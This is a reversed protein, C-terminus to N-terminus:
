AASMVASEPDPPEIRTPNNVPPNPVINNAKMFGLFQEPIEALVERALHLRSVHANTSKGLFDRFPVFQVIDRAAMRGDPATLRVTDGDLEDMADFDANGVGVIIISLPLTSADVIAKRTQPMDTIIGDTIILLIFYQSGDKFQRAISAVHNVTPAFNTPGYLQVRSICGKYSSLVGGIRECYPNDPHGNVYFMHSVDGRPPIRAGFGLTPFLKDSDYDEIIEGVSKIALEYQNMQGGYAIYHLSDPNRPNGNSATFDISITCALETGGRIYDLFSYGKRMDVHVLHIEGSHKYSSKSKKKPNVCRHINSAGPGELLQRVTIFFEGILKHSGNLNHDFCEVKINRDYDGNCLTRVPIFFKKWLPNVNNKIHETKHVVTYSGGENTRSFVLFPDSSGFWDKKDLKKGLLQLELEDKCMSLEECSIIMSGNTGNRHKPHILDLIINGSSVVQGLTVQCTGLFDHDDLRHTNSDVDYLDFKLYQQEEFTYSIQVKTVWQPNLTNDICETRKIEIWNQTGFPKTSVVCIPDSKSFVDMDRLNKASLSLEVISTANGATGPQFSGM